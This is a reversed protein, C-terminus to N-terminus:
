EEEEEGEDVGEPVRSVEVVVGEVEGEVVEALDLDEEAEEEVVEAEVVGVVVSDVVQSYDHIVIVLTRVRIPFSHVLLLWIVTRFTMYSCRSATPLTQLQGPRGMNIKCALIKQSQVIVGLEIRHEKGCKVLVVPWTVKM